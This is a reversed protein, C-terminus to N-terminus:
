GYTVDALVIFEVTQHKRISKHECDLGESESNRQENKECEVINGKCESAGEGELQKGSCYNPGSIDDEKDNYCFQQLIEIIPSAFMLLGEPFQLAVLHAKCKQIRQITKEIEFNYNEPLLREKAERLRM